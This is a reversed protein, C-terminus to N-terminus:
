RITADSPSSPKSHPCGTHTTPSLEARRFLCVLPECLCISRINKPRTGFKAYIQVAIRNTPYRSKVFGMAPM